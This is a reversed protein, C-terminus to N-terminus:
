ASTSPQYISVELLDSKPMKCYDRWECDLYASPIASTSGDYLTSVFDFASVIHVRAVQATDTANIAAICEKLTFANM